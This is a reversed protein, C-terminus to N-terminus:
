HAKSSGPPRRTDPQVHYEGLPKFARAPSTDRSSERSTERSCGQSMSPRPIRSRALGLRSPSSDRRCGQSCPVKSRKDVPTSSASPPRSIRGYGSSHGLLKGPSSSRSGPQSQSILLHKM